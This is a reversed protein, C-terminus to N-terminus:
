PRNGEDSEDDGDDHTKARHKAKSKEADREKMRDKGTGPRQLRIEGQFSELEIRAGGNGLTFSFQNSRRAGSWPIPFASSFGGSFTSVSVAAGARDPIAVTIGGDHSSFRYSGRDRIAGEYRVEGNITSAEVDDSEVASLTVDGNVSSISIPGAVHEASADANVSSVEVKGRAGSVSADGEVSGAKVSRAPGGVSVDGQVSSAEVDGEVGKVDIDGHITTLKLSMGRPVTLRFDVTTPVGLRTTARVEVVGADADVVVGVRAGHDAEVRVANRTWTEVAIDGGFNNIELRAGSRAVFTTDTHTATSFVAATLVALM